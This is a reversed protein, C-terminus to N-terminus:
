KERIAGSQLRLAAKITEESFQEQRPKPFDGIMFRPVSKTYNIYVDKISPGLHKHCLHLITQATEITYGEHAEEWSDLPRATTSTTSPSPM